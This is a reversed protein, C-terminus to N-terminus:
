PFCSQPFRAPAYGQRRKGKGRQIVQEPRAQKPDRKASTPNQCGSHSQGTRSGTLQGTRAREGQVRLTEPETAIRLWPVPHLLFHGTHISERRYVM